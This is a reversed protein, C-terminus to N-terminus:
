FLVRYLACFGFYFFCAPCLIKLYSFYDLVYKSKLRMVLSGLILRWLMSAFTLGLIVSFVLGKQHYDGSLEIMLSMYGLITMPNSLAITTVQLFVSWLDKRSVETQIPTEKKSLEAVGFCILLVGGFFHLVSQYGKLYAILAISGTAALGSLIINALGSALAVVIFGSLGLRVTQKICVMNIPGIPISIALGALFAQTLIAMDREFYFGNYCLFCSM